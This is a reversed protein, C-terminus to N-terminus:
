EVGAGQRVLAEAETPEFEEAEPVFAAAWAFAEPAELHMAVHVGILRFRREDPMDRRVALALDALPRARWVVRLDDCLDEGPANGRCLRQWAGAHLAMAAAEGSRLRAAAEEYDAALLAEGFFSEPAGYDALARRPADLHAKMRGGFVLDAGRLDSLTRAPSDKAVSLVIPLRTLQGRPRVTMVARVEGAVPRYAEGDLVAIDVQGRALAQAAAARDAFACTQTTVGLREGLLRHYARQGPPDGAALPRCPATTESLQAIRLPAGPTQAQAASALLAAIALLLRKM